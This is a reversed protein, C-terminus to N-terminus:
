RSHKYGRLVHVSCPISFYDLTTGMGVDLFKKFFNERHMTLSSM